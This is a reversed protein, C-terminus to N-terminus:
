TQKFLPGHGKGLPPYHYSVTFICKRFKIEGIMFTAKHKNNFNNKEPSSIPGYAEQLIM